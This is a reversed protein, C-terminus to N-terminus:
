LRKYMKYCYAFTPLAILTALSIWITTTLGVLFSIVLLFIPYFILLLGFLVSDFFVTNRTNQLALTRILNFFWKQTLWGIFSPIGLIIKKTLNNKKEFLNLDEEKEVSIFNEELGNKLKQNFVKHYESETKYSIGQNNFANKFDLLVVKPVKNFSSYTLVTPIIQTEINKEKAMWALRSTGKKLSRLKWENVCLGESFILITAKKKLLQLCTEFTADNKSLNEKGESLRYIPILHISHLLSAVAPNKFADGRALFYIPKKYNVAIFIADFFSNPHNSALITAEECNINELGVIHRQNTYFRMAIKAFLRLVSYTVNKDEL